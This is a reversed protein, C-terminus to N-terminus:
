IQNICNKYFQKFDPLNSNELVIGIRELVVTNDEDLGVEMDDEDYSIGENLYDVILRLQQKSITPTINVKSVLYLVDDKTFISSVNAEVLSIVDILILQEPKEVAPLEVVKNKYDDSEPDSDNLESDDRILDDYIEAITEKLNEVALRHDIDIDVDSFTLVLGDLDFKVSSKDVTVIEEKVWESLVDDFDLAEMIKNIVHIPLGLRDEKKLMNLINIVDDKSFISSLSNNIQEIVKDKM